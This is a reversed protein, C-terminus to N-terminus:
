PTPTATPTVEPAPTANPPMNPTGPGYSFIAQWPQYHTRIPREGTNIQVGDRTIVRYVTVDAGDAAYDVQKITGAALEADEEYKDDPHPVVNEIIPRAVTVARGDSTSYFKWTLRGAAPNVYTEMLLWYPSDNQFKFDVIPSFVTADLGPGSWEGPASREYYGVRYAHSSREIIPFGGFYAVRFLTSSVQCVGGGVGRITRGGYIILAEAFGSDLSVDGLFENFSFVANPPVLLGHFRAAATTINKIREASSGIFYISQQSVLEKIGLDAAQLTDPFEPPKTQFVLPILHDGQAIGTNIATITAEVDLHREDLSPELIDFQKTEDNFIFHANKSERELGPALPELYARLAAPDLGMEFHAANPGDDVRRITLMAGLAEPPLYWAPPDAPTPNTITLVLPQSLIAQAQAAQPSADLVIPPVESYQLTFDGTALNFIPARVLGATALLDLQRGVQGPLTTITTGNAILEAERTPIFFIEGIQRLYALTLSENYTVVPSVQRGFYWTDFQESWDALLNGSRGIRYATNITAPLNLTLGLEAPAATWVHDGERFTFAPTQPYTFAGSIAVAAEAPTLGSLDLGLARVGPYIRGDYQLNFASAGIVALSLTILTIFFSTYLFRLPWLILGPTSPTPSHPLTPALSSDMRPNYCQPNQSVERQHYVGVGHFNFYVLTVFDFM